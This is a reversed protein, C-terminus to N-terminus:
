NPERPMGGAHTVRRLAWAAGPEDGPCVGRVWVMWMQADRVTVRWTATSPAVCGFVADTVDVTLLEGELRYRGWVEVEDTYLEAEDDAFFSGDRDFRALLNTDLWSDSGYVREVIWVGVLERAPVPDASACVAEHYDRLAMGRGPLPLEAFSSGDPTQLRLRVSKMDGPAPLDCNAAVSFPVEGWAGAPLDGATGSTVTWTSDDFAVLRADVPVATANFVPLKFDWGARSEVFVESVTGVALPSRSSLEDEGQVPLGAGTGVLLGVVLGALAGAGVLLWPRSRWWALSAPSVDSAVGRSTNPTRWAAV